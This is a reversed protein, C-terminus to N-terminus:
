AKVGSEGISLGAHLLHIEHLLRFQVGFQRAREGAVDVKLHTGSDIDIAADSGAGERGESEADTLYASLAELMQQETPRDCQEVSLGKM